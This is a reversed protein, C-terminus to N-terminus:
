SNNEYSNSSLQIGEIKEKISANATDKSSEKMDLVLTGKTKLRDHFMKINPQKWLAKRVNRLKCFESNLQQTDVVPDKYLMWAFVIAASRGHGARCHVYVKNGQSQHRRIFAVASQTREIMISTNLSLLCSLDPMM